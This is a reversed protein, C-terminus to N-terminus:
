FWSCRQVVANSVNLMNLPKEAGNKRNYNAIEEALQMEKSLSTNKAAMSLLTVPENRGDIGPVFELQKSRNM